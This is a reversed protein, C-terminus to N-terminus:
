LLGVAGARGGSRAHQLHFLTLSPGSGGWTDQPSAPSISPALPAQPLDESPKFYALSSSESGLHPSSASASNQLIQPFLLSENFGCLPAQCHIPTGSPRLAVMWGQQTCGSGAAQLCWWPGASIISLMVFLPNGEKSHSPCPFKGHPDPQLGGRPLFGRPAAPHHEPHQHEPQQWGGWICGHM